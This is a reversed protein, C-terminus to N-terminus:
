SKRLEVLMDCAAHYVESVRYEDPYKKMFADMVKRVTPRDMEEVIGRLKEELQERRRTISLHKHLEEVVALIELISLILVFASATLISQEGHRWAYYFIDADIILVIFPIFLVVKELRSAGFLERFVSRIL